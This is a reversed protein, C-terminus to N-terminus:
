LSVRPSPELYERVLRPMVRHVGAKTNSGKKKSGATSGKPEAVTDNVTSVKTVAANQNPM